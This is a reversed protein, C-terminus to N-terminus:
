LLSFSVYPDVIQGFLGQLVQGKFLFGLFYSCVLDRRNGLTTLM